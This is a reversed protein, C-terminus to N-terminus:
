TLVGLLVAQGRDREGEFAVGGIEVGASLREGEIHGYGRCGLDPGAGM